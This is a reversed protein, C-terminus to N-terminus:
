LIHHVSLLLKQAFTLKKQYKCTIFVSFNSVKMIQEGSIKVPNHKISFPRKEMGDRLEVEHLSAFIVGGLATNM